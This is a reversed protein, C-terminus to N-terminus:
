EIHYPAPVRFPFWVWRQDFGGTTAWNYYNYLTLMRGERDVPVILFCTPFGSRTAALGLQHRPTAHRAVPQSHTLDFPHLREAKGSGLEM